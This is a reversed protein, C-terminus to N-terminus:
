KLKYEMINAKEIFGLNRYLKKNRGTLLWESIWIEDIHENLADNIIKNITKTGISINRYQELINLEKLNLIKKNDILNINFFYYDIILDNYSITFVYNSRDQILLKLINVLEDRAKETFRDSMHILSKFKNAYKKYTDYINLELEKVNELTAKKYSIKISNIVERIFQSDRRLDPSAFNIYDYSSQMAIKVVEKNSKLRNSAYKLAYGNKKVATVVIDKDDKLRNSAYKLSMPANKVAITVLEKDDCYKSEIYRCLM